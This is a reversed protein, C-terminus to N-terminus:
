AAMPMQAVDSKSAIRPPQGVVAFGCFDILALAQARLGGYGPVDAHAAHRDLFQLAGCAAVAVNNLVAEETRQTSM